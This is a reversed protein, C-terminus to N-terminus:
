KQLPMERKQHFINQQEQKRLLHRVVDFVMDSREYLYPFYKDWGIQKIFEYFFSYDLYYIRDKQKVMWPIGSYDFYPCLEVTNGDNFTFVIYEKSALKHKNSHCLAESFESCTLNLLTQDPVSQYMKIDYMISLYFSDERLFDRYNEIDKKSIRYAECTDKVMTPMKSVFEDVARGYFAIPMNMANHTERWDELHFEFVNNNRKYIAHSSYLAYGGEHLYYIDVRNVKNEKDDAYVCVAVFLLCVLIIHRKMNDFFHLAKM